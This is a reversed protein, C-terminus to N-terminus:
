FGPSGGTGFVPVDIPGITSTAHLEILIRDIVATPIDFFPTGDTLALGLPLRPLGGAPIDFGPITLSLPLGIHIPDVPITFGPIHFTTAGLVIPGVTFAKLVSVGGGPDFDSGVSFPVYSAKVQFGSSSGSRLNLDSIAAELNVGPVTFSFPAVTITGVDFTPNLSLHISPVPISPINVPGIDGIATFGLPIAPIHIPPIVTIPGVGAHVDAGLASFM